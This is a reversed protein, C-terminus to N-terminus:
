EGKYLDIFAQIPKSMANSDKPYIGYWDIKGCDEWIHLKLLKTAAHSKPNTPNGRILHDEFYYFARSVEGRTKNKIAVLLGPYNDQTGRTKITVEAINGNKLDIYAADGIIEVHDKIKMTFNM